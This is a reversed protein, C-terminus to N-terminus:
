NSKMTVVTIDDTQDALGVFRRVDWLIQQAIQNADLRAHSLDVFIEMVAAGNSEFPGNNRQDHPCLGDLGHRRQQARIRGSM